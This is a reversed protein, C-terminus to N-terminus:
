PAKAHAATRSTRRSAAKRPRRRPESGPLHQRTRLVPAFLDGLENVRRLTEEPSFRLLGEDRRAVADEVEDWRVPASVAPEPRARLSYPAVTSKHRSNQSWDILVKGRRLEKRMNSVIADPHRRELEQAIALSAARTEDYTCPTNLPVYPQVGKGGSVKPWSKLGLSRLHDRVLLAVAASGLLGVGEGPDLDFVMATPTEPDEGHCLLPHFELNGANALWVLSAADNASTFTIHDDKSGSWIRYRKLWEPTNVPAEKQFFFAADVGDPYRKLNLPRRRLHPLMAPAVRAYYDVVHGKTFGTAPYYVKGLNSLELVRRGVRARTVTREPM